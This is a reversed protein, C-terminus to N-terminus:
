SLCMKPLEGWQCPLKVRVVTACVCEEQFVDCTVFRWAQWVFCYSCMKQCRLFYVNQHSEGNVRLKVRVVTARM